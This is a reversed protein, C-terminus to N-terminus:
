LVRWAKSKGRGRGNFCIHVLLLLLAATSVFAMNILAQVPDDNTVERIIHHAKSCTYVGCANETRFAKEVTFAVNLTDTCASLNRELGLTESILGPLGRPTHLVSRRSVTEINDDPLTAKASMFALDHQHMYNALVYDVAKNWMKSNKNKNHSFLEQNSGASAPLNETSETPFSYKVSAGVCATYVPVQHILSAIRFHMDDNYKTIDRLVAEFIINHLFQPRFFGLCLM